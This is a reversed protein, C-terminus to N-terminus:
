SFFFHDFKRALDRKSSVFPMFFKGSADKGTISDMTQDDTLVILINPRGYDVARAASPTAVSLAAVIATILLCMKM